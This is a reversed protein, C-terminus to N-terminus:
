NFRFSKQRLVVPRCGFRTGADEDDVGLEPGFGIPGLPNLIQGIRLPFASDAEGLRKESRRRDAGSTQEHGPSVVFGLLIEAVQLGAIHLRRV